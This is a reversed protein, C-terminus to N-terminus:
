LVLVESLGQLKDQRLIKICTNYKTIKEKIILLLSICTEISKSEVVKPHFNLIFQFHKWITNGSLLAHLTPYYATFYRPMDVTLTNRINRNYITTRKIKLYQPSSTNIIKSVYLQTDFPFSFQLTFLKNALTKQIVKFFYPDWYLVQKVGSKIKILTSRQDDFSVMQTRNALNIFCQAINDFSQVSITWNLDEIDTNSWKLEGVSFTETPITYTNIAKVKHKALLHRRLPRVSLKKELPAKRDAHKIGRVQDLGM